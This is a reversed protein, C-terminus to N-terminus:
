SLAIRSPGDSLCTSAGLFTNKPLLFLPINVSWSSAANVFMVTV